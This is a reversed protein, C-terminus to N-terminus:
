NNQALIKNIIKSTSNGYRFPIIKVKGGNQSVINAGIINELAYDGGKVLIDPLLKLIVERPNDQDFILVLDVPKIADIIIARDKENQIPRSKGKITQISSDSNIAVVLKNGYKKADSLYEIHGRHVIDFCGNTFVIKKELKKWKEIQNKAIDLNQAIM